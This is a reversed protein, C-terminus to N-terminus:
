IHAFPNGAEDVRNAVIAKSVVLQVPGLQRMPGTPQVLRLPAESADNAKNAVIEYNAEDIQQGHQIMPKDTMPENADHV